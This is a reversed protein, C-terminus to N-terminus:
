LQDHRLSWREFLKNSANFRYGCKQLIQGHEGSQPSLDRIICIFPPRKTELMCALQKAERVSEWRYNHILDDWAWAAESDNLLGLSIALQLNFESLHHYRYHGASFYSGEFGEFNALARIRRLSVDYM